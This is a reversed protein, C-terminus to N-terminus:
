FLCGRSCHKMAPGSLIKTLMDAMNMKGPEHAIQLIGAAVTERVKHYAIANHRKKLTSAPNTCNKVVSENDGFVNAPGAIPIGMYRLKIRLAEVQEVGIKM